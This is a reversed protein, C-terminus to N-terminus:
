PNAEEEERAADRIDVTGVEPGEAKDGEGEPIKM